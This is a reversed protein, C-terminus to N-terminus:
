ASGAPGRGTGGARHARRPTRGIKRRRAPRKRMTPEAQSDQGTTPPPARGDAAQRTSHHATAPCAAACASPTRNAATQPPRRIPRGQKKPVRIGGPATVQAGARRRQRNQRLIRIGPARQGRHEATRQILPDTVPDDCSDAAAVRQGARVARPHGRRAPRRTEAAPAPGADATDIADESRGSAAAETTVRSRSRSARRGLGDVPEATADAPVRPMLAWSAAAGGLGVPQEGDCGAFLSMKRWRQGSATEWCRRRGVAAAGV